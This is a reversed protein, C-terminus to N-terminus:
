GSSGYGPFRIESTSPRGFWSLPSETKRGLYGALDPTESPSRDSVEAVNPIPVDLVYPFLGGFVPGNTETDRPPESDSSLPRDRDEMVTPKQIAM